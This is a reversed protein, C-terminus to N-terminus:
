RPCKGSLSTLPPCGPYTVRQLVPTVPPPLPCVPSFAGALRSVRPPLCPSLSLSPGSPPPPPVLPLPLVSFDHPLLALLQHTPAGIIQLSALQCSPLPLAPSHLSCPWRCVGPVHVHGVKCTSPRTSRSTTRTRARLLAVPVCKLSACQLAPLVCPWVACCLSPVHQRRSPMAVCAFTMSVLLSSQYNGGSCSPDTRAHHPSRCWERTGGYGMRPPVVVALRLVGPVIFAGEGQHV